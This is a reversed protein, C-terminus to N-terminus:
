TLEALADDLTAVVTTAHYLLWPSPRAAGFAVIRKGQQHAYVLEMATGWSPRTANVLLADAAAIDRLDGVVIADVSEAEHGRYDRTMPDLVSWAGSLRATAETRWGTAEEDTCGNIPGALYVTLTM